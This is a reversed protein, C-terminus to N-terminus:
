LHELRFTNNELAKYDVWINGGECKVDFQSSKKTSPYHPQYSTCSTGWSNRVLLECSKRDPNWRSGIVLSAHSGCDDAYSLTGTKKNTLGKYAEGKKLVKSCYSIGVPLSNSKLKEIIKETFPYTKKTKRAETNDYTKCFSFSNNRLRESAPCVSDFIMNLQFPKDLMELSFYKRFM